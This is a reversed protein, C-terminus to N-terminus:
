VVTGDPHLGGCTVADDASPASVTGAARSRVTVAAVAIVVTMTGAAYWVAPPAHSSAWAQATVGDPRCCADEPVPKPALAGVLWVLYGFFWVPALRPWTVAIPVLLLACSSPWVIPTAVICAAVLLVFSRRDGDDGRALVPAAALCALGAAASVAIAAYSPAGLGAAVTALSVSRVAYVGQVARLLAPYDALGEFGITAWAGLLLLTASAAAWAAAGFRRTVLLWVVLPWVLLKAAVAVGVAVGAVRARRRYRWAVALPLLLAIGLNGFYLGHVVVPSTVGLVHCRWDRVGVVRLSALVVAGLLGFWAASALGAPLLALAVSGLVALPPYVTPNGVVIQERTPEPYVPLGDVLARAPEWLTGRFDFGLPWSATYGLVLLVAFLVPVGLLLVPDRLRGLAAGLDDLRATPTM